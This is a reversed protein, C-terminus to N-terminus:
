PKKAPLFDRLKMAVQMLQLGACEKFETPLNMMPFQDVVAQWSPVNALAMRENVLEARWANLGPHDQHAEWLKAMASGPLQNLTLMENQPHTLIGWAQQSEPSDIGCLPAHCLATWHMSDTMEMAGMYSEGGLRQADNDDLAQMGFFAVLGYRQGYSAASGQCQPLSTGKNPAPVLWQYPMRESEEGKTAVLTITVKWAEGEKALDGYEFHVTVGMEALVPRLVLMVDSLSAYTSTLHTNSRAKIAVLSRSRIDHLAQKLTM